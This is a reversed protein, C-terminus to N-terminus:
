RSGARRLTEIFAEPSMLRPEGEVVEIRDVQSVTKSEGSHVFLAPFGRVGYRRALEAESPGAEPNVRVALIDDMFDGVTERGLLEREFQRCYPCWDTYFYVFLPRPNKKYELSAEYLGKAGDYWRSFDVGTVSGAGGLLVACAAM